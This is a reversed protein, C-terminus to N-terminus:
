KSASVYTAYTVAMTLLPLLSQLFMAVNDIIRGLMPYKSNAKSIAKLFVTSGKRVMQLESDRREFIQREVKPEWAFLKIMRM